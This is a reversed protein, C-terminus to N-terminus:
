KARIPHEVSGGMGLDVFTIPSLPIVIGSMLVADLDFQAKELYFEIVDVHSVQYGSTDM